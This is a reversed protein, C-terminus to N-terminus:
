QALRRYLEDNEELTAKMAEDFTQSRGPIIGAPATPKSYVEQVARQILDTVRVGRLNAEQQLQSVLEDALEVQFTSM